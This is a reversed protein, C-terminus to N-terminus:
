RARSFYNYLLGLVTVFLGFSVAATISYMMYQVIGANGGFFTYDWKILRPIGTIIFDLNPIPMTFLNFIQLDKFVTLQNLVTVDAASIFSGELIRNLVTFGVFLFALFGVTGLQM